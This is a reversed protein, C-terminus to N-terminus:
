RLARAILKAAQGCAEDSDFGLVASYSRGVVQAILFTMSIGADAVARAMKYGVGSKDPGSVLLAPLSAPRLGAGEAKLSLKRGSIPWVEVVARTTDGPQRYAMVAQMSGKAAALPELMEALAGSRDQVEARWLTIRKVKTAM